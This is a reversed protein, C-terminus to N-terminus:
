DSKLWADMGFEGFERVYCGYFERQLHKYCRAEELDSAALFRRNQGTRQELGFGVFSLGFTLNRWRDM